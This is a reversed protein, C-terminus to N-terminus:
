QEVLSSCREIMVNKNRRLNKGGETALRSTMSDLFFELHQRPDGVWHYWNYLLTGFEPLSSSPEIGVYDRIHTGSKIVVEAIRDVSELKERDYVVDSDNPM